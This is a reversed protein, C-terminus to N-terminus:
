FIYCAVTPFSRNAWCCVSDHCSLTGSAQLGGLPTLLIGIDITITFKHCGMISNSLHSM